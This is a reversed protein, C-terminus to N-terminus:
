TNPDEGGSMEKLINIVAFADEGQKIRQAEGVVQQVGLKTEVIQAENVQAALKNRELLPRYDGHPKRRFM